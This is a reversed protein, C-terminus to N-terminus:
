CAFDFKSDPNYKAIVYVYNYFTNRSKTGLTALICGATYGISLGKYLIAIYILISSFFTCGFFWIILDFWINKKISEILMKNKDLEIENSKLNEIQTNVYSNLEERSEQNTNNILVIGLVIGIIFTIGLFILNRKNNEIYLFFVSKNKM